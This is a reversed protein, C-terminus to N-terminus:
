AKDIEFDTQLLFIDSSKFLSVCILNLSKLQFSGTFNPIHQYAKIATLCLPPPRSKSLPGPSGTGAQTLPCDGVSFGPTVSGPLRM